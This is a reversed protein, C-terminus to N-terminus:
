GVGPPDSMPEAGERNLSTAGAGAGAGATRWGGMGGLGISVAARAGDGVPSEPDRATCVLVEGGVPLISGLLIPSSGFRGTEKNFVV